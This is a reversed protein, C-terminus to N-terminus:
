MKETRKVRKEWGHQWKAPSFLDEEPNKRRESFSDSIALISNSNIQVHHVYHFCFFFLFDRFQTVKRGGDLLSKENRQQAPHQNDTVDLNIRRPLWIAKLLSSMASLRGRLMTLILFNNIHDNTSPSSM